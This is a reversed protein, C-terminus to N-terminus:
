TGRASIWTDRLHRLVQAIESCESENDINWTDLLEAVTTNRKTHRVWGDKREVDDMEIPLDKWGDLDTACKPKM